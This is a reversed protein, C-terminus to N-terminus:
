PGDHCSQLAMRLLFAVSTPAARARARDHRRHPGMCRGKRCSRARRAHVFARSSSAGDESIGDAPAARATRTAREMRDSLETEIAQVVISGDHHLGLDRLDALVVSADERAVDCLVLDGAPHRAAGALVVINCVSGHCGLAEVVRETSAGPSVMRLHLM